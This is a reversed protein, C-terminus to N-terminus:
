LKTPNANRVILSPVSHDVLLGVLTEIVTVGHIKTGGELPSITAPLTNTHAPDVRAFFAVYADICM